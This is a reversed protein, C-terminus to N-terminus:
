LLTKTIAAKGLPRLFLHPLTLHSPLNMIWTLTDEINEVTMHGENLIDLHKTRDTLTYGIDLHNIIVQNSAGLLESMKQLSIKQYDYLLPREPRHQYDIAAQSGINIIRVRKERNKFLHFVEFLLECQFFGIPANNVFIDPQKNQVLNLLEDRAENTTLDFGNERSFCEIKYGLKSLARNCALGIGRNGGTIFALNKTTTM